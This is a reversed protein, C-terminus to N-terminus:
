ACVGPDAVRTDGDDDERCRVVDVTKEDVGCERAYRAEDGEHM